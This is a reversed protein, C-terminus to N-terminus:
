WRVTAKLFLSRGRTQFGVVERYDENLLNELRVALTLAKSTQWSVGADVLHYAEVGMRGLAGYPGLSGDYGSDFRKGTYRHSVNVALAPTPFYNLRFLSALDPRRVMHQQEVGEDLFAGLNYLQIHNNGTHSAEVDKPGAEIQTNLLTLNGEVAFRSSVKAYGELELGSAWHKGVNIYTDGRDDSFTLEDLPTAGNWLYVYEISRTVETHFASFTLFSGSLFEKKVGVEFSLSREPELNVNGRTTHASFSRSPDYLQYLSPANFGSSLSGYILVSGAHYSPNAQFTLFNGAMNHHSLRAGASLRFRNFTFGAQAFLYSTTTRSDLTDYNTEIEFPFFPDNYFFYNEFRMEEGHLGGGIVAQITNRDYNVQVEHTQLFGSYTGSSFSKDWADASVRSSDNKYFRESDSLSGLLLVSLSPSAQFTMRYQLLNRGLTLYYNDDDSFAGNDVEAYQHARKFSVHAKWRENRFGAQLSADTKEFDDRDSTFSPQSELPVTADLGQVNQQHFSGNFYLGNELGYRLHVNETSSWAKKGFAGGQWSVDGHFGSPSEKRTILNIVGGIAAGGFLTSHSGRIVEVREINALSIESLDIASNPSSPDTIRVGDILVAVQNSNAGRMFVSQNTGPTQNAGVIYLGSQANLLDGLSQYISTTIVEEGIVTVSRPIEIVPKETRTASVVVERLTTTRITDQATAHFVVQTLVLLPLISKRM